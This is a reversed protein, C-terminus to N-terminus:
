SAWRRCQANGTSWSMSPYGAAELNKDGAIVSIGRRRDRRQRGAHPLGPLCQRVTRRRWSRRVQLGHESHIQASQAGPRAGLAAPAVLWLLASIMPAAFSLPGGPSISELKVPEARKSSMVKRKSSVITCGHSPTSRRSSRAKRGRQFIHHTSARSCSGATSGACTTTISQGRKRAGTAPVDSRSRCVIGRSQSATKM